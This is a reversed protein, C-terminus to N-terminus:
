GDLSEEAVDGAARRRRDARSLEETESAAVISEFFNKYLIIVLIMIVVWIVFIVWFNKIYTDLLVVFNTIIGIAGVISALIVSGIAGFLRNSFFERTPFYMAFILLSWLFVHLFFALSWAFEMGFTYRWVPNFFSFFGGIAEVYPMKTWERFLYSDEQDTGLNDINDKVDTIGKPQGDEDVVKKILDGGPVLDLGDTQAYIFSISLLLVFFILLVKKM